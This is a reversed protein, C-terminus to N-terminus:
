KQSAIYHVALVHNPPNVAKGARILCNSINFPNQVYKIVLLWQIRLMLPTISFIPQSHSASSLIPPDLMM